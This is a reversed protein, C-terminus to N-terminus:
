LKRTGALGQLGDDKRRGDWVFPLRRGDGVQGNGDPLVIFFDQEDVAVHALGDDMATEAQEVPAQAVAKGFVQGQFFDDLGVDKGVEVDDGATGDRRVRSFEQARLLHLGEQLFCRFHIIVDEEVHRGDQGDSIGYEHAALGVTGDEDQAAAVDARVFAFM